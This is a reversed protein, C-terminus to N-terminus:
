PREGLLQVRSGWLILSMRPQEGAGGRAKARPVGHMFVSNVEPTFAFVDGNHMPFEMTVGSAVHMLTLERTAGFSAGVTVQPVGQSDRGRDYHFPKYDEASRYLNLRSASARIGFAAELKAVLKQLAPPADAGDHRAGSGEFQMGLHRAGHWDSFERGQPLDSSLQALLSMDEHGCLFAPLCFVAEPGYDPLGDAPGRPPPTTSIRVTPRWWGCREWSGWCRECYINVLGLEALVRDTKAEPAGCGRCEASAIGLVAPPAGAETLPRAARRPPTAAESGSAARDEGAETSASAGAASAGLPPDQAGAAVKGPPALLYALRARAGDGAAPPAEEAPEM